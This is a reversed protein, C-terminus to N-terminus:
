LVYESRQLALILDSSSFQGDCNWDGTSWTAQGVLPQDYLGAQFILILDASNFLGDLNADGWRRKIEQTLLFEFDSSDIVSDQNRDLRSDTVGALFAQCWLDLDLSNAAGDLNLDGALQSNNRYWVIRSDTYSASLTDLDGDGDLDALHVTQPNNLRESITQPASWTGKGDTNELWTIAESLNSTVLWDVDGDRDLDVWEMAAPSALDQIPASANGFNGTGDNRFWVLASNYTSLVALDLDRDGDVDGLSLTPIYPPVDQITQSNSWKGLGDTNLFIDVRSDQTSAIALDIDNDGDLDGVVIRSPNFAASPVRLAGSFNGRGDLNRFWVVQPSFFDSAVAVVDLDGDGDFDASQADTTTSLRNSITRRRSFTLPAGPETPELNEYWAVTTSRSAAVLLDPRGDGNMDAIEVHRPELLGTEINTIPGFRGGGLNEFWSIRNDLTSTAVVDLDGDRDLDGTDLSTVGDAGVESVIRSPWNETPANQLWGVTDLQRTGFAIDIAGDGNLDGAAFSDVEFPSLIVNGATLFVGRGRNEFWAIAQRGPASLMLDLDRDQDVDVAQITMVSPISATITKPLQFTGKGDLNEYWSVESFGYYSSAGAVDLDGDGDFDGVTMTGVGPLRAIFRATGFRGRGDENEFWVIENRGYVATLLDGDGDGDVDAVTVSQPFDTDATVVRQPGFRQAASPGLNEYWSVDSDYAGASSSVLDLDGDQDIDAAALSSGFIVQDTVQRATSYQGRGNLNEFWYLANGYTSLAAVDLDRDNDLDAAIVFDASEWGDAIVHHTMSLGDRSVNEYWGVRGDRESAVLLDLDGDADIDAMKVDYPSVHDSSTLPAQETWSLVALLDRTELGELCLRRQPVGRLRCDPARDAKRGLIVLSFGQDDSRASRFRADLDPRGHKM